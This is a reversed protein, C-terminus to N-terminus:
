CSFSGLGVLACSLKDKDFEKSVSAGMGLAIWVAMLDSTISVPISLIDGFGSSVLFTQWAPIPLSKVLTFISGAITIAAVSMFGNMLIKMYKAQTFKMVKDLIGNM